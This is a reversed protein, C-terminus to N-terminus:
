RETITELPEFYLWENKYIEPELGIILFYELLNSGKNLGEKFTKIISTESAEINKTDKEINNNNKGEKSLENYKLLEKEIKDIENFSNIDKNFINNYNNLTYLIKKYCNSENIIKNLNEISKNMNTNIGNMNELLIFNRNKINYNKIIDNYIKYYIELNDNLKNMKEIIEKIYKKYEDIKIRLNKLNNNIVKLDPMIVGYTKINHGEHGKECMLCIDNKCEQCYSNYPEHHLKCIFYKKEYDIINHTKDHQLICLPCLNLQCELCFYFKNNYMQSKDIKCKQCLIQSEDINQSKEFENILLNEIKHMNKCNELTIKFNNVYIRINEKCEPCIINSSKKLKNNKNNTREANDIKDFVLISIKNRKKDESNAQEEFTLEENIQSGGYLFFIDDKKKGIKIIYRKIIDKMKENSNCQISSNNGDYNFIVEAM